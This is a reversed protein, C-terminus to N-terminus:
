IGNRVPDLERLAQSRVGPVMKTPPEPAKYALHGAGRGPHGDLESVLAMPKPLGRGGVTGAASCREGRSPWTASCFDGPAAQLGSPAAPTGLWTEAKQRSSPAGDRPGESSPRGRRCGARCM